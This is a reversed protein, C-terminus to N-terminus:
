LALLPSQEEILWARLNEAFAATDFTALRPLSASNVLGVHMPGPFDNSLGIRKTTTGIDSVTL